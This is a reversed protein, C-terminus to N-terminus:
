TPKKKIRMTYAITGETLKAKFVIDFGNHNIEYAKLKLHVLISPFLLSIKVSPFRGKIRRSPAKRDKHVTAKKIHILRGYVGITSTRCIHTEGSQSIPTRSFYLVRHKGM